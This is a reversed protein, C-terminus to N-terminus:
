LPDPMGDSDTDLKTPDSRYKSPELLNAFIENYDSIGDDDTDTLCHIQLLIIM